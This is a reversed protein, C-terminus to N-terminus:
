QITEDISWFIDMNETACVYDFIQQTAFFSNHLEDVFKTFTRCFWARLCRGDCLHEGGFINSCLLPQMGDPSNWYEKPKYQRERQEWARKVWQQESQRRQVGAPQNYKYKFWKHFKMEYNRSRKQILIENRPLFTHKPIENSRIEISKHKRRSEGYKIRMYYIHTSKPLQSPLNSCVKFCEQPQKNEEVSM